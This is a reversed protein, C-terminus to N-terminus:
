AKAECEAERASELMIEEAISGDEPFAEQCDSCRDVEKKRLTANCSRCFRTALYSYLEIMAEHRECMSTITKGDMRVYWNRCGLSPICTLYIQHEVHPYAVHDIYTHGMGATFESSLEPSDTKITENM